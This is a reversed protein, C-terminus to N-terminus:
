PWPSVDMGVMNVSDFKACISRLRCQQRKCLRLCSGPGSWRVSIEKQPVREFRYRTPLIKSNAYVVKATAAFCESEAFIKIMVESGVALTRRIEMQRRLGHEARSASSNKTM